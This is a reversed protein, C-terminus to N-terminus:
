RATGSAAIRLRHYWAILTGLLIIVAGLWVLLTLPKISIDVVVTESETDAENSVRLRVTGRAPDVEELTLITGASDLKVPSPVRSGGQSVALSPIVQASDAGNVVSV